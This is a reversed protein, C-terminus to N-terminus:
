SLSQTRFLNLGRFRQLFGAGAVGALMLLWTPPEPAVVAAFNAQAATASLGYAQDSTVSVTAGGALSVQYVLDISDDENAGMSNVGGSALISNLDSGSVPGDFGLGSANVIASSLSSGLEVTSGDARVAQAATVGDITVKGNNTAPTSSLDPDYTEFYTLTIASSSENQFTMTTALAPVGAALSYSRTFAVDAGGATYTGTYIASTATFSGLTTPQGVSGYGDATGNRVFTSTTTGTQLGWDSNYYGLAYYESGDYQLASIDGGSDQIDVTLGNASIDTNAWASAASILTLLSTALLLKSAPTNM